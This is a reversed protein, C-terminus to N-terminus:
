RGLSGEWIERRLRQPLPGPTLVAGGQAGPKEERSYRGEESTQSNLAPNAQAGGRDGM